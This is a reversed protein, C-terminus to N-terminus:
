KKHSLTKIGLAESAEALRAAYADAPIRVWDSSFRCIWLVLLIFGFAAAGVLAQDVDGSAHWKVYLRAAAM